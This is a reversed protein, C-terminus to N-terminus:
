IRDKLVSFVIQSATVRSRGMYLFLLLWLIQLSVIVSPSWLVNLGVLIDPRGTAAPTALSVTAIGYGMGLLAMVQYASLRHGGRYDARFFESIVRWGQSLILTIVFAATATGQLFLLLGLLGSAVLFTATMAQIPILPVRELGSEYAVKKTEGTFVFAHAAFIRRWCRPADALPKGYCCGFSVCAIRGTGEGLAYAISLAALSAVLPLPQAEGPSLMDVILVIWPTAVLGSFAAGGITFTYAKGEVIRALLRAASVTVILLCLLLLMVQSLRVHLSTLLVMAMAVAITVATSSLLGYYTLNIGNWTGQSTRETPVSALFQWGDFPLVRFAWKLLVVYTLSLSILVITNM